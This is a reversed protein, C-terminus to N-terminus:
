KGADAEEHEPKFAVRTCWRMWLVEVEEKM